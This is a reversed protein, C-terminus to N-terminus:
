TNAVTIAWAKSSLPQVPTASQSANALVDPLLCAAQPLATCRSMASSSMTPAKARLMARPAFFL